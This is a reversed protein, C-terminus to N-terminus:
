AGREEVLEFDFVKAIIWWRGRLQVLTLLDTFYRNGIACNAVVLATSRGAFQVSVVKDRRMENRQAPPERKALVALYEPQTRHLLDGEAATAYVAAPLMVEAMRTADAEYVADFYVQVVQYVAAMEDLDNMM